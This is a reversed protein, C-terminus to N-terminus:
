PPSQTLELTDIEIEGASARPPKVRIAVEYARWPSSPDQAVRYPEVHLHWQLHQATVGSQESEWPAPQARLQSLLSQGTLWALDREAAQASRRTADSFTEYVAAVCLSFVAFAVVVEILTFGQQRAGPTM